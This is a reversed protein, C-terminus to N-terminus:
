GGPRPMTASIIMQAQIAGDSTQDGQVLVLDGTPLDEVRAGAISVVRTQPDTHVTVDSGSLGSLTLTAGDNTTITGMTVGTGGLGGGPEEGNPGGPQPVSPESPMPGPVGVRTPITSTTGESATTASNNGSFLLGGLIGGVGVLLVVALGLAVLLGTNRRPPEPEPEQEPFEGPQWQGGPYGPQGAVQKRRWGSDDYGGYGPDVGYGGWSDYSPLERTSNPGSPWTEFVDNGPYATTPQGYAESHDDVHLPETASNGPQDPHGTAADPRRAWPDNPNTM